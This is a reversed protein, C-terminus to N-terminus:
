TQAIISGGLTVIVSQGGARNRLVREQERYHAVRQARAFSAGDETFDFQRAFKASIAGCADAAAATANYSTGGSAGVVYRRALLADLDADALLQDATDTDGILLRVIDRNPDTPM